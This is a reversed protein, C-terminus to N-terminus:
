TVPSRRVLYLVWIFSLLLCMGVLQHLQAMWEFLGWHNPIIKPSTLVSAVGLIVQLIVLALPIFRTVYFLESDKVKAARYYWLLILISLLYALGRYRTDM